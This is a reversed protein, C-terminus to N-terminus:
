VSRLQTTQQRQLLQIAAFTIILGSAAVMYMGTTLGFHTAIFGILPPGVMGGTSGFTAMLSLSGPGIAAATAYIAPSILSVTLGVIAFSVWTAALGSIFLGISLVISVFFGAIAILVLDPFRQRLNDAFLRGIFMAISFVLIGSPAISATTGIVERLYVASWDNMSGEIITACFVITGLILTNINILKREKKRESATPAENKDLGFYAYIILTILVGSVFISHYILEDSIYHIVGMSLLAAAALGLSFVAHLRSMCKIHHKKEFDSGLTNISANIGACCIGEFFMLILGIPYSQNLMLLPLLLTAAIGLLLSTKRAGLNHLFWITIPFAVIAGLSTALLYFGLQAETIAMAIKLDVLRSAWSGINFGLVCFLSAIPLASLLKHKLPKISNAHQNNNVM